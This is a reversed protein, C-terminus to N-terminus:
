ILYRLMSDMVSIKNIDIGAAQDDMELQEIVVDISATQASMFLQTAAEQRSM